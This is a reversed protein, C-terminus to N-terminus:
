PWPEPLTAPRHAWPQHLTKPSAGFGLKQNTKAAFGGRVGDGRVRPHLRVKCCGQRHAAPPPVGAESRIDHAHRTFATERVM